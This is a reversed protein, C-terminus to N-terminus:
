FLMSTQRFRCWTSQLDMASNQLVQGKTAQTSKVVLRKFKEAHRAEVCGCGDWDDDKGGGGQSAALGGAADEELEQRMGEM